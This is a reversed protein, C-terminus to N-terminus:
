LIQQLSPHTRVSRTLRAIARRDIRGTETMLNSILTLPVKEFYTNTIRANALSNAFVERADMKPLHIDLDPPFFKQRAVLAVCPVHHWRAALALAYTGIKNILNQTTVGDGGVLVLEAQEVRSPALADVVLECPVGMQGLQKVMEVGECLPRSEACVIEIRKGQIHATKLAELVASSFSITVIRGEHPLLSLANKSLASQDRHVTREYEEMTWSLTERLDDASNAEEAIWLTRNVLNFLAAM